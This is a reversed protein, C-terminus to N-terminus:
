QNDEDELRILHLAAAARYSGPRAADRARAAYAERLITGLSYFCLSM